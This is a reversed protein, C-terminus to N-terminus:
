CCSFYFNGKGKKLDKCRSCFDLVKECIEEWKLGLREAYCEYVCAGNHRAIFMDCLEFPLFDTTIEGLKMTHNDLFDFTM